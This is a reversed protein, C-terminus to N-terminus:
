QGRFANAIKRDTGHYDHTAEEMRRAIEFLVGHLDETKASWDKQLASYAVQAEGTWVSAVKSVRGQLDDLERKIENASSRVQAALENVGGYSVSIESM